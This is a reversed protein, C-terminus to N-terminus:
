IIRKILVSSQNVVKWNNSTAKDIMENNNTTSKIALYGLEKLYQTIYNDSERVAHYRDYKTSNPDSIADDIYAIKSDTLYIFIAFINNCVIGNNYYIYDNETYPINREKKWNCILKFHEEKNYKIIM